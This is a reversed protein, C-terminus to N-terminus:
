ASEPKAADAADKGKRHPKLKKGLWGLGAAVKGGLASVGDRIEEWGERNGTDWMPTGRSRRPRPYDKWSNSMILRAKITHQHFSFGGV